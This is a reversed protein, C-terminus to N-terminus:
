SPMWWRLDPAPYAEVSMLTKTVKCHGPSIVTLLRAVATSEDPDRLYDLAIDGAWRRPKSPSYPPGTGRSSSSRRGPRTPAPFQTTYLPM